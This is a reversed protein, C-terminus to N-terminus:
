PQTVGLGVRCDEALVCQDCLPKKRCIRAVHYDILAHYENFLYPDHPLLKHFLEQYASYSKGRIEWGLRALLRRTYMDIVFSPKKAGYLIIDDATEEGIGWVSLLQERMESIPLAFLMALDGDHESLIFEAFEKLKRTKAKYYGSPRIIEHMEEDPADLIEQFSWVGADRMNVLAREVNSWSINQVLIAGVVLEFSGGQVTPWWHRPGYADFLAAFLWELDERTPEVPRQARPDSRSDSFEYIIEPPTHM